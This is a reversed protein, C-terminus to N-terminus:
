AHSPPHETGYRAGKAAGDRHRGRPPREFIEPADTDGEAHRNILCCNSAMHQATV